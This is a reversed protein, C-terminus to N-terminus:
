FKPTLGIAAIVISLNIRGLEKDMNAREVRYRDWHWNRVSLPINPKNEVSKFKTWNVLTEFAVEPIYYDGRIKPMFGIYELYVKDFPFWNDLQIRGTEEFIKYSGYQKSCACRSAYYNYYVSDCCCKIKEINEDTTELCGCVKKDFHAIFESSVVYEVLETEVNLVPTTTELTYDGNPQLKKLITQKYTIGSLVVNKESQTIELEECIGKEQHCQECKNTDCDQEIISLADVIENNQLLPEKLGSPNIIGVFTETKFDVPLTATKTNQNVHLLIKRSGVRLSERLLKRLGRAAWFSYLEEAKGIDEYSDVIAARVVRSLPTLNRLESKCENGSM